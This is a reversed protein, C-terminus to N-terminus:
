STAGAAADPSKSGDAPKIFGVHLVFVQERLTRLTQVEEIDNPFLKRVVNPQNPTPVIEVCKKLDDLLPELDAWPIHMLRNFGVVLIGIIGMKQIEDPLVGGARVISHTARNAWKDIDIASQETLKFVKGKDRGEDVITVTIEKRAM